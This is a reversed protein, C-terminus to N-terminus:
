KGVPVRSIRQDFLCIDACRLYFMATFYSGTMCEGLTITVRRGEVSTPRDVSVVSSFNKDLGCHLSLISSKYFKLHCGYARHGYKKLLIRFVLYDSDAMVDCHANSSSSSCYLLGVISSSISSCSKLVLNERNEEFETWLGFSIRTPEDTKCFIDCRIRCRLLM